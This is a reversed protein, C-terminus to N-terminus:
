YYYKATYNTGDGIYDLIDSSGGSAFTPDMRNWATGDFYIVGDVWGTSESWVSIWAHYADGAYGVVLKAPVGQSRLMGTMLAAYDFCIGSMKSLVSDLDPYYGSTVTAALQKDYTMGSVVFDYIAEVKKLPDSIGRCLAAARTVTNPAADFNVYQNSRLFPAFEDTMTVNVSLSLVAAYKSGEVNEFIVIKYDGNQDSLPFATWVGPTLHYTYTTSPGKVQVKLKQTTQATFCVMVYGDETNSYDIVALENSKFLEGSAEVTVTTVIAPEDIENQSDPDSGPTTEETPPTTVPVTETPAPASPETQTPASPDTHVPETQVPETETPAPESETPADTQAPATPLLTGGSLSSGSPDAATDEPRTGRCGTLSMLLALLVFLATFRQTITMGCAEMRDIKTERMKRAPSYVIKIKSNRKLFPNKIIFFLSKM